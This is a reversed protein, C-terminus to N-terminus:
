YGREGVKKKLLIIETYRLNAKATHDEKLRGLGSLM